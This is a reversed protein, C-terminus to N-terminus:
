APGVAPLELIRSLGLLSAADNLVTSGARWSLTGGRADSARRFLMLLQLAATDVREVQSGDLEVACGQLAESLEAQLAAQAGIRCDVPLVVTVMDGPAGDRKAARKGAM